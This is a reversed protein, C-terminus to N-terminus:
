EPINLLKQVGKDKSKKMLKSSIKQISLDTTIFLRTQPAILPFKTTVLIKLPNLFKLKM